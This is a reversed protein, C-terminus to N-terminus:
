AKNKDVWAFYKEAEKQSANKVDDDTWSEYDVVDSNRNQGSRSSEATKKKTMVAGRFGDVGKYIVSLPTTKYEETFATDKLQKQIKALDGESIDPYEEKILSEMGTFEKSFQVEAQATVQGEKVEKITELAQKVEPSMESKPVLGVISKILEADVGKEEALKKIKSDMDESVQTEQAPTETPKNKLSEIEGLLETERKSWNKEAIKHKFVPMVQPVRNVKDEEPKAEDPKKEEVPAEEEDPKAEPKEEVPKEGELAPINKGEAQMEELTKRTDEDPIQEDKPDQSGEILLDDTM